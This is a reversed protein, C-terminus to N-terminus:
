EDERWRSAPVAAFERDADEPADGPAEAATHGARPHSERREFSARRKRRGTPVPEAAMSRRRKVEPRDTKM